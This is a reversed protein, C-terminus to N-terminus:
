AARVASLFERVRSALGDAEQRLRDSTKSVSDAQGLTEDASQSVSEISGAVRHTQGAANQASHAIENAADNQQTVAASIASSVSSLEDIVARMDNVADGVAQTATQIQTIQQSIQGTAKGTQNALTKVESAVVAFGKGAEGARAAEITANLALLNTQEAIDSILSVVADIQNAADSLQRMEVSAQEMRVRAQQSVDASRSIQGGIEAVSATLEEAASAVTSVAESALSGAGSVDLAREKTTESASVLVGATQQLLGASATVAELAREAAADFDSALQEIRRAREAEAESATRSERQLREAEEGSRRFVELSNVISGLEDSRQLATVDVNFDGKALEQTASAIRRVSGSVVHGFGFSVAALILAALFTVVAFVIQTSSAAADAARATGEAQTVAADGLGVIDASLEAFVSDFPAIFSVASAFDMDLMAGVVDLGGAYLGLQEDISQLVEAEQGTANAGFVAFRERLEGTRRIFAEFESTVDIQEGAAVSTLTKYVDANLNMVSAQLYYLEVAGSLTAVSARQDSAVTNLSQSGLLAVSIMAAIALAPAIAFKVAFPWNRFAYRNSAM